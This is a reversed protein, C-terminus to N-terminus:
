KLFAIIKNMNDELDQPTENLAEHINGNMQLELNLRINNVKTYKSNIFQQDQKSGRNDYRKKLTEKSVDLIMILLDYEQEILFDITSGSGLRDGELLINKPQNKIIWEKFEPMIAMSAKDLGPFVDDPNRYDGFVITEGFRHGIVLGDKFFNGEEEDFEDDLIAMVKRMLTSKGTGPVGIVMIANKM